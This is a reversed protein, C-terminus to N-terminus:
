NPDVVTYVQVASAEVNRSDRVTATVEVEQGDLDPPLVGFFVLRLGAGELRQDTDDCQLEFWPQGAAVEVGDLSGSLSASVVDTADFETAAVALDVHFGGQQGYVLPVEDGPQVPNYRDWGMGLELSPNSGGKCPDNCAVLLVPLVLFALRTMGRIYRRCPGTAPRM